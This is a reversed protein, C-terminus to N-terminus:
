LGAIVDLDPALGGIIAAAMLSGKYGSPLARSALVGTIGHTVIDM